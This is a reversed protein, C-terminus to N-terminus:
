IFSHLGGDAFFFCPDAFSGSAASGWVGNYTASMDTAKEDQPVKKLAARLKCVEGAIAAANKPDRLRDSRSPRNSCSYLAQAIYVVAEDLIHALCAPSACLKSPKPRKM